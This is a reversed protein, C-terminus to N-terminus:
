DTPAKPILINPDQEQLLEALEAIRENTDQIRWAMREAECEILKRLADEADERKFHLDAERFSGCEQKGIWGRGDVSKAVSWAKDTERVYEFTRVAALYAADGGGPKGLYAYFKVIMTTDKM